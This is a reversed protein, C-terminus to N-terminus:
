ILSHLSPLKGYLTAAQAPTRPIQVFDDYVKMQAATLGGAKLRLSEPMAQSLALRSGLEPDVFPQGPRATRWKKRLLIAQEIHQNMNSMAEDVAAKEIITCAMDVNDNVVQVLETEPIQDEHYGNQLMLNRLHTAMGVKLLERSSAWTISGSLTRVVMQAYKRYKGEDIETAFDKGLVEKSAMVAIQTMRDAVNNYVERIANQIAIVLIQKLGAHSGFLQTAPHITLSQSVSNLLSNLLISGTSRVALQSEQLQQLQLQQQQQDYLSENYRGLNEREDRLRAAQEMQEKELRVREEREKLLTSPQIDGIKVGLERCTVEIEFKLNLKLEAYFYFESLLRLIGNVWANQATFIKSKGCQELIRCVFPIVVILRNSDHGELLLEKFAICNHLIPKNKALTLGGLWGAITKLTGRETSNTIATESNILQQVASYTEYHVQRLLEKNNLSDLLGFYLDHNNAEVMARKTVLYHAFWPYTERTLNEKLAQLKSDLNGLTLNNIQFLMKDRVAESPEIFQLGDPREPPVNVATFTAQETSPESFGVTSAYTNQPSLSLRNGDGGLLSRIEEAIEPQTNIFKQNQLVRTFFQPWEKAKHTFLSLAQVGFSFMKSGPEDRLSEQVYKLCISLPISSVFGYSIISGFLVATVGLAPTPYDHAYFRYEDILSHVFGAFLERHVPDSSTKYQQMLNIVAEVSLSKNYLQQFLTGIRAEAEPSLTTTDRLSEFFEDNDNDLYVLYPYARVCSTQVQDLVQKLEASLSSSILMLDYSCLYENNQRYAVLTRLFTVVTTIKLGIFQPRERNARNLEMAALEQSAKTHLFELCQRFFEPGGAELMEDLWKALNLFERRSTLAALEIAFSYPRLRLLQPLIKTEQAIDCIRSITASDANFLQLFVKTVFTPNIQYARTFFLQHAGQARFFYQFGSNVFTDM